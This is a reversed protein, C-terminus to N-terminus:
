KSRLFIQVISNLYPVLKVSCVFVFFMGFM